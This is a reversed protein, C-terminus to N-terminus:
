PSASGVSSGFSIGTGLSGTPERSGRGSALLPLWTGVEGDSEGALPSLEGSCSGLAGAIGLGVAGPTGAGGMAGGKVGGAETADSTVEEKHVHLALENALALM